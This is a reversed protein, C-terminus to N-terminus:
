EHMVQSQLVVLSRHVEELSQRAKNTGAPIEGELQGLATRLRQMTAHMESKSAHMMDHMSTAIGHGVRIFRWCRAFLVISQLEEITAVAEAASRLRRWPRTM